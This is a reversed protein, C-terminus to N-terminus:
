LLTPFNYFFIKLNDGDNSKYETTMILYSNNSCLASIDPYDIQFGLLSSNPMHSPLM